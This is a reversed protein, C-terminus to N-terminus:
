GGSAPLWDPRRSFGVHYTVKELMLQQQGKNVSVVNVAVEKAIIRGRPYDDLCRNLQALSQELGDDSRQATPDLSGFTIRKVFRVESLDLESAGASVM